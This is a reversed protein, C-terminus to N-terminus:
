SCGRVHIRDRYDERCGDFCNLPLPSTCWWGRKQKERQSTVADDRLAAMRRGPAIAALGAFGFHFFARAQRAKGRYEV